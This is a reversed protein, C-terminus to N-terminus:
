FGTSSRTRASTAPSCSRSRRGRTVQPVADGSGTAEEAAPVNGTVPLAAGIAGASGSRGRISSTASSGASGASGATSGFALGASDLGAPLSDGATAGGSGDGAPAPFVEDGGGAGGDLPPVLGGDGGTGVTVASTAGGLRLRIVGPPTGPIPAQGALTIELADASVGGVIPQAGVFRIQIGAPELGKNLQELASGSPIPVASGAVM